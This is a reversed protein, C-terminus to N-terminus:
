DAMAAEMAEDSLEVNNFVEQVDDDDDLMEMMTLMSKLAKADLEITTKPRMTLKAEKPAIGMGELASAVAHLDAFATYIDYTDGDMDVDEAGAETAKEFITDDDLGQKDVIIIGKQEFNWSVANTEALSGGYKAVIHRVNSITRNKNDTLTDIILGAGSPGYAEYRQSEYSAGEVDGTGKAIARAINDKPMNEAKAAILVTRLRPNMLPDGGGLRAAVTIEKALKSFIKGRKADAAGKKRKITSWKSHGSM